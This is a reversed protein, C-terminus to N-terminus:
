GLATAAFHYGELRSLALSAGALALSVAMANTGRVAARPVLWSNIGFDIGILDLAALVVVALGVAVAFRSDRGPYILALGLAGLCAAGMPKMPPFGTGWSALLPLGAWWGVFAAAAITVAVFGAARSAQQRKLSRVLAFLKMCAGLGSGAPM